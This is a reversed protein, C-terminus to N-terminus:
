AADVSREDSQFAYLVSEKVLDYLKDYVAPVMLDSTDYLDILILGHDLYKLSRLVHGQFVGVGFQCSM